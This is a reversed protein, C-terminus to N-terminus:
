NINNFFFVYIYDSSIYDWTEQIFVNNVYNYYFYDILKYYMIVYLRYINLILIMIFNWM